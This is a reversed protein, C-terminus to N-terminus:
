ESPKEPRKTFQSRGKHSPLLPKLQQQVQDSVDLASRDGSAEVLQGNFFPRSANSLFRSATNPSSNTVLRKGPRNPWEGSTYRMLILGYRLGTPKQNTKIWRVKVSIAKGSKM